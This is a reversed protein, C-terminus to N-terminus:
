KRYSSSFAEIAETRPKAAELFPRVFEQRAALAIGGAAEQMLLSKVEDFPQLGAPRREVLEIVHYGFRTEVVDSLQGPKELAFAAEEFPAVMKGRTVFGLDGGKRASSPDKSHKRALEEFSAGQQLQQRLAEAQARADTTSTSILIHRVHVREPQKFRQPMAKYNQLALRELVLETPQSRIEKTRTLADALIRERVIQLLRQVEPQQDIQEEVAVASIQRRVYIDTAMRLVSEPSSLVNVRAANDLPTSEALIDATTVANAGEGVLIIEAQAWAASGHLGTLAIALTACGTARSLYFYFPLSPM